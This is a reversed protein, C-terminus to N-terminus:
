LIFEVVRKLRLIAFAVCHLGALTEALQEEDRALRRLRAVWAHSREGVGRQPLLMFGKKAEPLKVWQWACLSPTRM